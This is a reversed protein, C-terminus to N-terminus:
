AAQEAQELPEVIWGHKRLDDAVERKLYLDRTVRETEDFIAIPDHNYLDITEPMPQSADTKAKVRTWFRAQATAQMRYPLWSAMEAAEAKKKAAIQSQYIAATDHVPIALSAIPWASRHGDAFSPLKISGLRRLPAGRDYFNGPLGRAVAEASLDNIRAAAMAADSAEIAALLEVMRRELKPWEERLAQALQDREALIEAKRAETAKASESNRREALHEVMSDVAVNLAQASRRHREALTAATERDDEHLTFDLSDAMAKAASTSLAEIEARAEVILAEIDSLRVRNAGTSGGSALVAAIRENLPKAM